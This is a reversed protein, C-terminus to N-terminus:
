PLLGGRPYFWGPTGIADVSAFFFVTTAVLFLFTLLGGVVAGAGRPRVRLTAAVGLGHLVFFATQYGTMRGILMYAVYEHLLGSFLFVAAVGLLPRRLGGVPLFVNEHLYQSTPRNYRRWFDAPTRAIIPHISFALVNLGLLRLIACLCVMGGDFACLYAGLVKVTHDLWFSHAALDARFAWRLLLVGAAVELGGRALLVLAASRPRPPERLHRRLVLVFPVAVYWLWSRLSRKRWWASAVHLDLLKLALIPLAVVVAIRLGVPNMPQMGPAVFLAAAAAILATLRAAPSWTCTPWAAAALLSGTLVLVLAHLFPPM